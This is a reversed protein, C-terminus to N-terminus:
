RGLHCLWWKRNSSRDCVVACRIARQGYAFARQLAPVIETPDTVFEGYGGLAGAIQEYHARPALETAIAREEGMLAIQPLRIEGWQGDNGIVTVIPLKFRVATDFEM